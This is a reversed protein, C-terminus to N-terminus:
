RSASRSPRCFRRDAVRDDDGAFRLHRAQAGIVGMSAPRLAMAGRDARPQPDSAAARRDLVLGQTRAALQASSAACWQSSARSSPRFLSDARTPACSSASSRRRTQGPHQDGSRRRVSVAHLRHVGDADRVAQVLRRLVFALMPVAPHVPQACGRPPAPRPARASALGFRIPPTTARCAILAFRAGRTLLSQGCGKGSVAMFFAARLRGQSRSGARAPAPDSSTAFASSSARRTAASSRLM